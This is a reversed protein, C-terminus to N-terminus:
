LLYLYPEVTAAPQNARASPCAKRSRYGRSACWGRSSMAEDGYRRTGVAAFASATRNAATSLAARAPRPSGGAGSTCM